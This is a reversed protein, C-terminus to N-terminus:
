KAKNYYFKESIVKGDKWHQVAVQSMKMEGWDKHTADISYEMTSYNDGTAIGLVKMERVETIGNVFAEEHARNSVKGIRPADENEQMVVDDAYYKDFAELIKGEAIMKALDEVLMKVDNM